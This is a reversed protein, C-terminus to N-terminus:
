APFQSEQAAVEARTSLLKMSRRSLMWVAIVLYIGVAIGIMYRPGIRDTIAGFVAPSVAMLSTWCLQMANNMQAQMHDPTRVAAKSLLVVNIPM